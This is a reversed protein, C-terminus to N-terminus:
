DRERGVSRARSACGSARFAFYLRTPQPLSWPQQAPPHPVKACRGCAPFLAAARALPAHRASHRRITCNCPPRSDRRNSVVDIEWASLLWSPRSLMLSRAVPSFRFSSQRTRISRRKLQPHVSGVEGTKKNGPNVDLASIHSRETDLVM